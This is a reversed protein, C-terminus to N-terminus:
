LKKKFLCNLRKNLFLRIYHDSYYNKYLSSQGIRIAEELHDGEIKREFNGGMSDFLFGNPKLAATFKKLLNLPNRVHEFIETAIILDYESKQLSVTQALNKITITKPNLNRTKFRWIAFEFKKDYLDVLTLKAGLSALLLGIDAIGCGYDIVNIQNVPKKLSNIIFTLYPTIMSYREYSLMMRLSYHFSANEYDRKLNAATGTNTFFKILNLKFKYTNPLGYKFFYKLLYFNDIKFYKKIERQRDLFLTLNTLQLNKIKKYWYTNKKIEPPDLLLNKVYFFPLSKRHIFRSLRFLFPYEKTANIIKQRLM